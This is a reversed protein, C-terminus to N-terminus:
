EQAELLYSTKAHSTGSIWNFDCTVAKCKSYDMTVLMVIMGNSTVCLDYSDGESSKKKLLTRRIKQKPYFCVRNSTVSLLQCMVPRNFKWM